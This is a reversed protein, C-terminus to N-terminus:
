IQKTPLDHKWIIMDTVTSLNVWMISKIPEVEKLIGKEIAEMFRGSDAVWSATSLQIFGGMVKEVKGIIHYTVTRLFLKKGILDQYNNVDIKEEEGLQNKISEYTEESITITKM